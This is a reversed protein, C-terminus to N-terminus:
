PYYYPSVDVKNHQTHLSTLQFFFYQKNLLLLCSTLVLVSLWFCQKQALHPAQPIQTEKIAEIRISSQASSNKENRGKYCSKICLGFLFCVSLTWHHHAKPPSVRLLIRISIKEWIHKEKRQPFLPLPIQTPMCNGSTPKETGAVVNRNM